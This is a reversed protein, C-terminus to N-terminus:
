VESDQRAGLKINPNFLLKLSVAFVQFVGGRMVFVVGTYRVIAGECTECVRLTNRECCYCWFFFSEFLADKKENKNSALFAGFQTLEPSDKIDRTYM